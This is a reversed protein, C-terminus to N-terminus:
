RKAARERNRWARMNCNFCLTRYGDPFGNVRLWQYFKYGSFRGRYKSSSNKSNMLERRHAAGNQQTHDITLVVPDSEGCSACERGYHGFVDSRLKNRARVVGEKRKTLDAAM